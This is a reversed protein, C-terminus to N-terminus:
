RPSFPRAACHAAVCTERNSIRELLRFEFQPYEPTPSTTLRRRSAGSVTKIYWFVAPSKFASLRQRKKKKLLAGCTQCYGAPVKGLLPEGLMGLM